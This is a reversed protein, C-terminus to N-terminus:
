IKAFRAMRVRDKQQLYVYYIGPPLTSVDVENGQLM